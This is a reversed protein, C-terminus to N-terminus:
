AYKGKAESLRWKATERVVKTKAMKHCSATTKYFFLGFENFEAGFKVYFFGYKQPRLTSTQQQVAFWYLM